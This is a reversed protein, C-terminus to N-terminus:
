EGSGGVDLQVPTESKVLLNFYYCLLYLLIWLHSCCYRGDWMNQQLM